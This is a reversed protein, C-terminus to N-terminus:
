IVTNKAQLRLKHEDVRKLSKAFVLVIIVWLRCPSLKLHTMIVIWKEIYM